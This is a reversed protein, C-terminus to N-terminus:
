NMAKPKLGHSSAILTAGTLCRSLDSTYVAAIPKKRLRLQLMGYQAEGEATLGVDRHGNYRKEEHGKVQGHRLLYIRTPNMRGGQPRTETFPWCWCCPLSRSSKPPPASCM